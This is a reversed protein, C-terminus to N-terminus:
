GAVVSRDYLTAACKPASTNCHPWNDNEKSTPGTIAEAASAGMEYLETRLGLVFLAIIATLILFVQVAM